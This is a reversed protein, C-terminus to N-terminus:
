RIGYSGAVPRTLSKRYFEQSITAVCSVDEPVVGAAIQGIQMRSHIVDGAQGVTHALYHLRVEDVWFLSYGDVFTM